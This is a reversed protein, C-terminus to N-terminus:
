QCVFYRIGFFSNIFSIAHTCTARHTQKGEINRQWGDCVDMLFVCPFGSGLIIDPFSGEMAKRGNFCVVNLSDIKRRGSGVSNVDSARQCDWKGEGGQGSGQPRALM